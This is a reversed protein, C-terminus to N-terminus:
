NRLGSDAADYGRAPFDLLCLGDGFPDNLYAIRGCDATEV